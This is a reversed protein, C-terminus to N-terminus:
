LDFYILYNDIKSVIFGLKLTPISSLENFPEAVRNLTENSTHNKNALMAWTTVGLNHM